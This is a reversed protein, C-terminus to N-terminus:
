DAPASARRPLEFLAGLGVLTVLAATALAFAVLLGLQANSPVQSIVLVGFGLAIALSDALIAPGAEGIAAQAADGRGAARALRYREFFHIGYDVGIGLTIACFMSTAVGLPIGLWGMAGFVWLAALFAPAVACLGATLSRALLCVAALAGVLALVLSSVQTRVIAPIMAQSVAVDGAFGVRINHPTLHQQEYDRIADMLRATDRFNADALFITVIGQRLDDDIAERRRRKGRGMDFREMLTRVEYPGEPVERSGPRRGKWLFRATTMLSHPGLVGGVEPQARLFDEFDGITHVLSPDLLPGNFEGRERFGAYEPTPWPGEFALHALLVHTGHLRANVEDTAQRFPSRPAFGDVWGDQVVLRGVGLVLGVTALGLLGLILRPRRGPWTRWNQWASSQRLGARPHRMKEPAILMLAAPVVTLSWVLCFLIGVGAFIGFVRVPAIPSALFSLFGLTTTLSTLVLPPTMQHFTERVMSRHESSGKTPAENGDRALVRQYHWFIHIEDALGITTLIVPLIGTTLYLPVGLWGMLGFTWVLCAGVESLGLMVGWHRRCGIWLVIAIVMMARPVLKQNDEMIHTGLLSEAVPAGVVHVRDGNGGGNGNGGASGAIPEVIALVRQYLATRDYSSSPGDGGPIGVLITLAQLDTSVLTGTYIDAAEVDAKLRELRQPTEPLPDLLPRFTLTGPFVRDSTETALSRVSEPDVDPLAKLADTMEQLRRLTGTNYVGDPHSTMLFVVISDHLHFHARVERDFVVAPDEHPVLAGGDTRLELRLLGPLAALTLLPLIALAIRPRAIAGEALRHFGRDIIRSGKSEPM